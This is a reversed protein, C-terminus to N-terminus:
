DDEGGASAEAGWWVLFKGADDTSPCIVQLSVDPPLASFLDAYTDVLDFAMEAKFHLVLEEIPGGTDPIVAAPEGFVRDEVQAWLICTAHCLFVLLGGAAARQNL